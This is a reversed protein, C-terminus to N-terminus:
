SAETKLQEKFIIKSQKIVENMLVGVEKEDGGVREVIGKEWNM